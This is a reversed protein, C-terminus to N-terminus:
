NNKNLKYAFLGKSRLALSHPNLNFVVFGMKHLCQIEKLTNLSSCCVADNETKHHDKKSPTSRCRDYLEGQAAVTNQQMTAAHHNPRTGSQMVRGTKKKMLSEEIGNKLRFDSPGEQGGRRM